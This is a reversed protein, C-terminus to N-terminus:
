CGEYIGGCCPCRYGAKIVKNIEKGCKGCRRVFKGIETKAGVIEGTPNLQFHSHIFMGENNMLDGNLSGCAGSIMKWGRAQMLREAYAGAHIYERETQANFLLPRTKHAVEQADKLAKQKVQHAQGSEISDWVNDMPIIKRLFGWPEGDPPIVVFVKNRLDEPSDFACDTNTSGNLQNSIDLCHQPDHNTCIGYSELLRVGNEEKNLGVVIRGEEYNLPGGPPSIWISLAGEPECLLCDRMKLGAEKEMRDLETEDSYYEAVDSPGLAPNVVRGDTAVELVFPNIRKELPLNVSFEIALSALDGIFGEEHSYRATDFAKREVM